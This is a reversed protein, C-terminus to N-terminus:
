RACSSSDTPHKRTLRTAHTGSCCKAAACLLRLRPPSASAVTFQHRAFRSRRGDGFRGNPESDDQKKCEDSGPRQRLSHSRVLAGERELKAWTMAKINRRTGTTYRDDQLSGFVVLLPRCPHIQRDSSAAVLKRGTRRYLVRETVSSTEPDAGSTSAFAFM